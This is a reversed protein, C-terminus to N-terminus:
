KKLILDKAVCEKVVEMMVFMDCMVLVQIETELTKPIKDKIFQILMRFKFQSIEEVYAVNEYSGYKEKLEQEKESIMNEYSKEEKKTKAVIDNILLSELVKVTFAFKPTNSSNSIVNILTFKVIADFSLNEFEEIGGFTIDAMDQNSDYGRGKWAM